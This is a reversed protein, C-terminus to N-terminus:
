EDTAPVPRYGILHNISTEGMTFPEERVFFFGKKRYWAVAEANQQMVGLWIQSVSDTRASREAEELLRSGIGRGQEAPLVYLSSVYLRGADRNLTTRM